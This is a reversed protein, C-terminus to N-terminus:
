CSFSDNNKSGNYLEVSKSTREYKPTTWLLCEAGVVSNPCLTALEFNPIQPLLRTFTSKSLYLAVSNVGLAAGGGMGTHFNTTIIPSRRAAWRWTPGAFRGANTKGLCILLGKTWLSCKDVPIWTGFLVLAMCTPFIYIKYVLDCIERIGIEASTGATISLVLNECQLTLHLDAKSRISVSLGNEEYRM